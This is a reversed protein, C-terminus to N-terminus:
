ALMRNILTDLVSDITSMVKAAAEYARQNQMMAVTEEDINVGAQQERANDFQNTLVQQNASARQAGQVSTGLGAVLQRYQGDVGVASALADANGTDTGMVPISSAAVLSPDTIAVSLSSAPSAPDYSFMATGPNGLADYGAQHQTNVTDALQRAVADLGQQYAPLTFNLLKVSGGADGASITALPAASGSPDTVTFTVPNGDPAGTASVGSAISLSSAQNGVVLPVGGLSVDAQGDPRMTATAGTLESLRLTLRDRTDLLDSVDAGGAKGAAIAKNADALGAAVSNTEDVTSQLRQVQTGMTDAVARSQTGIAAALAQAKGLVVNRAPSSALPNIAVEHWASRFDTLAASVGNSGPENVSSELDELGSQSVDALHQQGHETRVRAVLLADTMRTVGTVAVGDGHGDYRSWMAPATPAGVAASEIRRRTYGDTNVNAINGSAVDMAARSYTLASLATSLSGFTSAM